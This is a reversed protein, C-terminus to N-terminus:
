FRREVARRYGLWTTVLWVVTLISFGATARPGATSSFAVFFGTTGGILVALVYTRGIWRHLGPRDRRISSLFQWPGLLLATLGGGVHLLFTFPNEILNALIFPAVGPHSPLFFRLSYMAVGTAFLTMVLWAARPYWTTKM